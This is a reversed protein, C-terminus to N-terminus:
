VRDRPGSCLSAVDTESSSSSSRSHWAARLVLALTSSCSISLIQTFSHLSLPPQSLVLIAQQPAPRGVAPPRCCPVYEHEPEPQCHNLAKSHIRCLWTSWFSKPKVCHHTKLRARLLFLRVCDLHQCITHPGFFMELLTMVCMSYTRDFLEKLRVVTLKLRLCHLTEVQPRRLLAVTLTM